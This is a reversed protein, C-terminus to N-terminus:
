NRCLSNLRCARKPQLESQVGAHRRKGSSRIRGAPTASREFEAVSESGGDVQVSEIHEATAEFRSQLVHQMATRPNSLLRCAAKQGALFIAPLPRGPKRTWARGMAAIRAPMSGERWGPSLPKVWVAQRLPVRYCWGHAMSRAGARRWPVCEPAADSGKTGGFLPQACSSQCHPRSSHLLRRLLTSHKNRLSLPKRLTTARKSFGSAM